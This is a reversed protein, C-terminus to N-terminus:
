ILYEKEILIDVMSMLKNSTIDFWESKSFSVGDMFDKSEALFALIENDNMLLLIGLKSYAAHKLSSFSPSEAAFASTLYLLIEESFDLSYEKGNVKFKFFLKMEGDEDEFTLDFAEVKKMYIGINEM